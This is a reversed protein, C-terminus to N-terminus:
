STSLLFCKINLEWVEMKQSDESTSADGNSIASSSHEKKRRFMQTLTISEMEPPKRKRQKREKLMALQRQKVAELLETDEEIGILQPQIGIM